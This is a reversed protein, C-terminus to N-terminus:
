PRGVEDLFFVITNLRRDAFLAEIEETSPLQLSCCGNCVCLQGDVRSCCIDESCRHTSVVRTSVVRTADQSRSDVSECLDNATTQMEQSSLRLSSVHLCSQCSTPSRIAAKVLATRVTRRPGAKTSRKLSNWTKSALTRVLTPEGEDNAVAHIYESV